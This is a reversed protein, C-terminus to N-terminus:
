YKGLQRRRQVPAGAELWAVADSTESDEPGDAPNVWVVEGVGAIQRLHQAFYGRVKDDLSAIRSDSELAAALLHLDKKMAAAIGRNSTSELVADTLKDPVGEAVIRLKGIRQMSALWRTAFKSLHRNWEEEIGANWTVRHCVQRISMLFDRCRIGLPHTANEDGASHAVSADVVICRSPVKRKTM